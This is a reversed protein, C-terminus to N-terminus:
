ICCCSCRLGGSVHFFSKEVGGDGVSKVSVASFSPGMSRSLDDGRNVGDCCGECRSIRRISSSFGGPVMEIM